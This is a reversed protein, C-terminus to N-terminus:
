QFIKEWWPTNLEKVLEELNDATEEPETTEEGLVNKIIVARDYSDLLKADLGSDRLIQRIENLEIGGLLLRTINTYVHEPLGAAKM